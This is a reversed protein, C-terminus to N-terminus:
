RGIAFYVGWNALTLGTIVFPPVPILKLHERMEEDQLVLYYGIDVCIAALTLLVLPIELSVGDQVELWGM